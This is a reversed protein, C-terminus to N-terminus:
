DELRFEMGGAGRLGEATREYTQCRAVSAPRRPMDLCLTDGEISWTGSGQMVGMSASVTGDAQLTMRMRMGMRSASLTAGSLLSRLEDGGLTQSRAPTASVAIAVCILACLPLCRM